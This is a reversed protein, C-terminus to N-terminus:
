EEEPPPTTRQWELFEAEEEPTMDRVVDNIQIKM